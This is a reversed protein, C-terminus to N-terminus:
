IEKYVWKDIKPPRNYSKNFSTKANLVGDLENDTLDEPISRSQTLRAAFALIYEVLLLGQRRQQCRKCCASESYSRCASGARTIVWGGLSHYDQLALVKITQM